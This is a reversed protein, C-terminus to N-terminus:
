CTFGGTDVLHKRDGFAGGGKGAHIDYPPDTLCLDVPEIEPLIELCDGLYIQIGGHDYYPKM